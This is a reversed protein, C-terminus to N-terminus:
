SPRHTELLQRILITYRLLPEDNDATLTTTSIIAYQMIMAILRDTDIAYDDEVGTFCWCLGHVNQSLQCYTNGAM